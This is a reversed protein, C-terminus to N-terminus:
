VPAQFQKQLNTEGARISKCPKLEQERHSCSMWFFNNNQVYYEEVNWVARLENSNEAAFDFPIFYILIYNNRNEKHKLQETKVGTRM